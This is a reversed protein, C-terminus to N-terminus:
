RSESSTTIYLYPEKPILYPIDEVKLLKEKLLINRMKKGLFTRLEDM